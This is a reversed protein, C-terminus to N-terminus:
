LLFLIIISCQADLDCLQHLLFEIIRHMASGLECPQVSTKGHLTHSEVHRFKGLVPLPTGSVNDGCTSSIRSWRDFMNSVNDKMGGGWVDDMDLMINGTSLFIAQAVGV